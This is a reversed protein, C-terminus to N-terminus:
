AGGEKEYAKLRHMIPEPVVEQNTLYQKECITAYTSWKLTDICYYWLDEQLEIFELRHLLDGTQDSAEILVCGSEDAVLIAGQFRERQEDRYTNCEATAEVKNNFCGLPTIGKCWIPYDEKKLRHGDRVHGNVILAEAGRYLLLFKAVLDGFSAREDCEYTDIYVLAGEPADQIQEHLPWNSESWTCTYYVPGVVFKGNTLPHISSLVGRKGLADAVETTSIRNTRITEIIKDRM